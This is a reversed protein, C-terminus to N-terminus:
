RKYIDCFYKLVESNYNVLKASTNPIKNRNIM